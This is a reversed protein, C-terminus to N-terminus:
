GGILPRLGDFTHCVQELLAQREPEDIALLTWCEEIDRHPEDLGAGAVIGAVTDAIRLVAGLATAGSDHHQQVADVTSPSFRLQALAAAGVEEHTSAFAGREAIARNEGAAVAREM